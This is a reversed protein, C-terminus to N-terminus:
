ILGDARKCFYDNEVAEQYVWYDKDIKIGPDIM